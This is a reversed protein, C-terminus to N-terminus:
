FFIALISFVARVAFRTGFVSKALWVIGTPSKRQYSEHRIWLVSIVM